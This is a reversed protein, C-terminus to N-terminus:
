HHSCCKPLKNKTHFDSFCTGICLPVNCKTCFYVTRENCYHCNRRLENRIVKNNVESVRSTVKFWVNKADQPYHDKGDLRWERGAAKSWFSAKVKRIEGKHDLGAPHCSRAVHSASSSSQQGELEKSIPCVEELYEEIFDFSSYQSPLKYRKTKLTTKLIFANMMMSSFMDALVRVQWRRSKVTSRTFALRMDHLDTGGMSANYHAVVDPRPLTQATWHQSGPDTGELVKRVCTGEHPPYSSLLTVTDSDQWSTVYCPHDCESATVVGKHCMIDGRFSAVNSDKFVGAKPFGDPNKASELGLRNTKITGVTHIGFFAAISLTQSSTFWNDTALLRQHNHLEPCMRLLRWVPFATASVHSPRKEAKGEYFYHCYAFGTKACNLSFKKLHYKAPKAKNYCRARHRGKFPIVGEDLSMCRGMRWYESCNENCRQVLYKIQWFPNDKNKKTIEENSLEWPAACNLATVLMDFRRRSMRNKVWAQGFMGKSWVHKRAAVKVVGLYAFIGFLTRLEQRDTRRWSQFRVSNKLRPHLAAAANTYQVLQDMMDDTFLLHVFDAATKCDHPIKSPRSDSKGEKCHPAGRLHEDGRRFPVDSLSPVEHREWSGFAAHEDGDDEDCSNGAEGHSMADSAVSKWDDDADDIDSPQEVDGGTVARSDDSVGPAAAVESVRRQKPTLITMSTANKQRDRTPATCKKTRHGSQFCNQCVSVRRKKGRSPPVLPPKLRPSKEEFDAADSAALGDCITVRSRPAAKAVSPKGRAAGAVKESRGEHLQGPHDASVVRVDNNSPICSLLAAFEPPMELNGAFSAWSSASASFGSHNPDTM